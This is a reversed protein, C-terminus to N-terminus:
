ELVLKLQKDMAQALQILSQLTPNYSGSEIKSITSRPLDAKLAVQSQTLKLKKRSAKLTSVIQYYKAEASVAAWMEPTFNKSFEESSATHNKLYNALKKNMSQKSFPENLIGTKRLETIYFYIKAKIVNPLSEIEKQARKDFVIIRIM